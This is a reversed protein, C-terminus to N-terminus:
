IRTKKCWYCHLYYMVTIVKPASLKVQHRALMQHRIANFHNPKKLLM